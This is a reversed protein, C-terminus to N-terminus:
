KKSIKIALRKGQKINKETLGLSNITKNYDKLTEANMRGLSAAPVVVVKLEQFARRPAEDQDESWNTQFLQVFFTEDEIGHIFTFSSFASTGFGVLGPLPWYVNGTKVYVLVASKRLVSDIDATVETLGTTFSGDEETSDAGITIVFAGAGTGEGDEGAPGAPGTAGTDGKPGAPGVDGAPGKCSVAVVIMAVSAVLLLKRFM